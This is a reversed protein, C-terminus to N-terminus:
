RVNNDIIQVNPKRGWFFNDINHERHQNTSLVRKEFCFRGPDPLDGGVNGLRTKCSYRIACYNQRRWEQAGEPNSTYFDKEPYLNTLYFHSGTPDPVWGLVIYFIEWLIGSLQLNVNSVHSDNMESHNEGWRTTGGHVVCSYRKHLDSYINTKEESSPEHDYPGTNSRCSNVDPHSESGPYYDCGNMDAMARNRIAWGVAIRALYQKGRAENYIVEAANVLWTPFRWGTILAKRPYDNIDNPMNNVYDYKSRSDDYIYDHSYVQAYAKPLGLINNPVSKFKATLKPLSLVFPLKSLEKRLQSIEIDVEQTDLKLQHMIKQRFLTIHVYMSREKFTFKDLIGLAKRPKDNDLLYNAYRFNAEVGDVPTRMNIASLFQTEARNDKFKALGDAYDVHTLYTGTEDGSHQLLEDFIKVLENKNQLKIALESLERTYKIRNKKLSLQSAKKYANLAKRYISNTSYAGKASDAKSVKYNIGNIVNSNSTYNKTDSAKNHREQYYLLAQALVVLLEEQDAEETALLKAEIGKIHETAHAKVKYLEVLNPASKQSQAKEEILNLKEDQGANAFFSLSVLALLSM